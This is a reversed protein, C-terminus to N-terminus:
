LRHQHNIFWWDTNYGDLKCGFKKSMEKIADIL